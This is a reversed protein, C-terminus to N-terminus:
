KKNILIDRLMKITKEKEELQLNLKELDGKSATNDNIAISKLWKGRDKAKYGAKISRAEIKEMQEENLYIVITKNQKLKANKKPQGRSKKTAPKKKEEMPATRKVANVNKASLKQVVRKIKSM